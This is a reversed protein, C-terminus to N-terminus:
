AHAVHFARQGGHAERGGDELPVAIRPFPTQRHGGDGVLDHESLAASDEEQALSGIDGAIKEDAAFARAEHVKGDGLLAQEPEVDVYARRASM